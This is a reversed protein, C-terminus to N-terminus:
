RGCSSSYEYSGVQRGSRVHVPFIWQFENKFRIVALTSMIGLNEGMFKPLVPCFSVGPVNIGRVIIRYRDAALKILRLLALIQQVWM